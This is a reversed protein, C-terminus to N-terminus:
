ISTALVLGVFLVNISNNFNAENLLVVGKASFSICRNDFIPLGATRSVKISNNNIPGVFAVNDIAKSINISVMSFFNFSVLFITQINKCAAESRCM